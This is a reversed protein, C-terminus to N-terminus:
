RKVSEVIRRLTNQNVTFPANKLKAENAALVDAAKCLIDEDLSLSPCCAVYFKDLDEINEFGAYRLVLEVEKEDAELLYGKLFIGVAQGHPIHADYTLTYSLGHPLSTGTQAIAMGAISSADMLRQRNQEDFPEKGLLVDKSEQWLLLGDKACEKSLENANANIFSEILHSLADIATNRIIQLPCAELYRGDVFAIDPFVKPRMSQKTQADDRTLVAVATVESGTGCTTPICAIPYADVESEMFLDILPHKMLVSIAKSADMASGGGIGIVFDCHEQRGFRSAGEITKVNPNEEIGEYVVSDIQLFRLADLVDQLSGNSKASGKGIVILAKQGLRLAHAHKIVADSGRYLHVPTQYLM